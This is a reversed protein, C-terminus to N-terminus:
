PKKVAGNAKEKAVRADKAAEAAEDKANEHDVSVIKGTVADILVEEIGSKGAVKVDFSYVLRGDEKEIEEEKITGGKVRALATTRAAEPSIKAQALLGPTEEKMTATAQAGAVTALSTLAALVLTSRFICQM